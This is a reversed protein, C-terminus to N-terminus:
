FGKLVQFVSLLVKIPQSELKDFTIGIKHEIEAKVDPGGGRAMLIESIKEEVKSFIEMHQREDNDASSQQDTERSQEADIAFEDPSAKLLNEDRRKQSLMAVEGTENDIIIGGDGDSHVATKRFNVPNQM